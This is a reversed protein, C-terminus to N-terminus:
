VLLFMTINHPSNIIFSAILLTTSKIKCHPGLITEIIVIIQVTITAILFTEKIM